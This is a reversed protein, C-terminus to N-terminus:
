WPYPNGDHVLNIEIDHQTKPKLWIMINMKSGFTFSPLLIFKVVCNFGFVWCSMSSELRSVRRNYFPLRSWKNNIFFKLFTLIIKVRQMRIPYEGSNKLAWTALEVPLRIKEVATTGHSWPCSILSISLRRAPSVLSM